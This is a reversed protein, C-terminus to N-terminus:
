SVQDFGTEVEDGSVDEMYDGHGAFFFVVSDGQGINDTLWKMERLINFRTPHEVKVGDLSTLEDSLVKVSNLSFGFLDSTLLAFMEKVDNTCGPLPELVKHNRYGIGVLLAKRRNMRTGYPTQEKPEYGPNAPSLSKKKQMVNTPIGKNASDAKALGLLHRQAPSLRRETQTGDALTNALQMPSQPRGRDPIIRDTPQALMSTRSMLRPQLPTPFDPDYRHLPPASLPPNRKVAPSFSKTRHFPSLTPQPKNQPHQLTTHPDPVDVVNSSSSPPIPLPSLTHRTAFRRFPGSKTSLQAKKTVM